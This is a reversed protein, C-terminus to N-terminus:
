VKFYSSDLGQLSGGGGGWLNVIKLMPISNAFISLLVNDGVWDM